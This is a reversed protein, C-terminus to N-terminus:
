SKFVYYGRNSQATKIAAVQPPQLKWDGSIVALRSNWIIMTQHYTNGYMWFAWGPWRQGHM